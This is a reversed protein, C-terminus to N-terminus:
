LILWMASWLIALLTVNVATFIGLYRGPKADYEAAYLKYSIVSAMSAILSGLGGLNVALLLSSFDSTFGSMLMAAPVNSIVQSLLIGVTLERGSVLASLASSVAPLAKINGIFIFFFIFTLLLGYDAKPLLTRDLVLVTIVVAALAVAYHVVHCVALICFVFLFAWPIAKKLESAQPLSDPDIDIKENKIFLMSAALLLFSLAAPVAMTGLFKGVSMGSLAYIYLNQPNGLPTLMSGLNAAVTQLVIIPILLKSNGSQRLTMVALPVFTILAVDNTILMSTFFCVGSLVATLTRTSGAMSLLKKVFLDFVGANKLGAVVLMLSLLLCLVRYDIYALYGAYPPVFFASVAALMMAAFLVPDHRIFLTIKKLM